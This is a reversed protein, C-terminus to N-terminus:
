AGRGEVRQLSTSCGCYVAGSNAAFADDDGAREQAGLRLLLLCLLGWVANVVLCRTYCRIREPRMTRQGTSFRTAETRSWAAQRWLANARTQQRACRTKPTKAQRLQRLHVTHEGRTLTHPRVLQHVAAIECPLDDETPGLSSGRMAPQSRRHRAKAAHLAIRFHQESPCIFQYLRSKM